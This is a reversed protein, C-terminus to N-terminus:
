HTAAEREISEGLQWNHPLDSKGGIINDYEEPTVEVILTPYTIGSAPHPGFYIPIIGEAITAENVELLKVPEEPDAEEKPTGLLRRILRITPEIRYHAHALKEAVEDKM